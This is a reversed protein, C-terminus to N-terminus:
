VSSRDRSARLNGCLRKIAREKRRRLPKMNQGFHLERMNGTCPFNCQLEHPYSRENEPFSAVVAFTARDPFSFGESVRTRSSIVSVSGFVRTSHGFHPCYSSKQTIRCVRARSSGAAPM